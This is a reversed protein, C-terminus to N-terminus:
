DRTGAYYAVGGILMGRRAVVRADAFGAQKLLWLVQRESNDKLEQSSHLLHALFGRHGDEPGAFDLLHLSGGPKLVRRAERLTGEKVERPLHHLMFSSLVRDFSAEEYPLEDAYGQEFRINVGARQAKRRARALAKPDPDLGVVTAGAYLRKLRVALTGTGCGIDLVRLGGRLAAQELLAERAKDGGILKVLPDYLPLFLDRGAAPLYDRHVEGM